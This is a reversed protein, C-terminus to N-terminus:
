PSERFALLACGGCLGAGGLIVAGTLPVGRTMALIGFAGILLAIGMGLLSGARRAFRGGLLVSWGALLSVLGLALGLGAFFLADGRDVPNAPLDPIRLLSLVVSFAGFITFGTGLARAAASRPAPSERM